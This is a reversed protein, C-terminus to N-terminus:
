AKIAYNHLSAKRVAGGESKGWSLLGSDKEQRKGQGVGPTCVAKLPELPLVPNGGERSPRYERRVRGANDNGRWRSDM